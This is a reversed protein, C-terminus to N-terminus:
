NIHNTLLLFTSADNRFCPWTIIRIKGFNYFFCFFLLLMRLPPELSYGCDINQNLFLFFLYVGTFGLKAEYFPTLPAICEVSM